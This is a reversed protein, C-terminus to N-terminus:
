EGDSEEGEYNTYFYESYEAVNKRQYFIQFNKDDIVFIDYGIEDVQEFMTESDNIENYYNMAVEKNKLQKVVIMQTKTDLLQPTVKLNDLSHSAANFNSLSDAIAKTKPSITNFVVVLYQPNNPHMTYPAPKGNKDDKKGLDMPKAAVTQIVGLATLIEVAKDHVEGSPYKKVISDLVDIYAQRGGTKGVVMARLLEFKPQLPNPKFLSDASRVRSIVDSYKEAVFYDYTSAYYVNLENKKANTKNLYEPDSLVMAFASTPYKSLIEQKVAEAKATNGTEGYLLYLNYYVQAINENEPFRSVLKEFTAIAKPLNELDDKYITGLAYYATFIKRNSAEMKAPTLPINELLSNKSADATSSSSDEGAHQEQEESNNSIDGDSSSSRKNSRRWNDELQRNGWKKIFDNYGTGKTSTNYFYWAGVSNQNGPLQMAQETELNLMTDQAAAQKKKEIEALANNIFKNRDKESMAALKQLSDQELIINTQQVINDLINKIEKVRDLTDFKSDLFAVASDYGPHASIYDQEQFNLEGLKLYSLGKQNLNTVSKDISTELNKVADEDKNQRLNVLAMYYYIQDYFEEYRDNAAMDKLEALIEKASGSGSQVYIRGISIRSNFDMEYSPRLKTVQTFEKTAQSPNGTLNYLQALIYTYRTETKKNKTLGIATKLPDIAKEYQKQRIFVYSETLALDDKLNEPFTQDQKIYALIAEADSYNKLNAYTRVMWLLDTNRVPQHKLFELLPTKQPEDAKAEAKAQEKEREAKTMPKGHHKKKKYSPSTSSTTKKEKFESSVYQFTALAADYNKKYYYAKGINFYSDGTWKSKPHLKTVITLRKILSDMDSGAAPDDPNGILYIPLLKTYDDKKSALAQAEYETMKQKAYYYGNYHATTNHYVRGM